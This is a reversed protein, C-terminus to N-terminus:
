SAFLGVTGCVAGMHGRVQPIGLWLKFKAACEGPIQGSVEFLACRDCPFDSM